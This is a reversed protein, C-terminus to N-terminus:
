IVVVEEGFSPQEDTILHKIFWLKVMQKLCSIVFLKHSM